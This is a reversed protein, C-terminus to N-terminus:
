PSVVVQVEPTPGYVQTIEGRDSLKVVVYRYKAQHVLNYTDLYWVLRGFDVFWPDDIASVGATHISLIEPSVQIFNRNPLDTRQRYVIFPPKIVLNQLINGATTGATPPKDTMLLLVGVGSQHLVPPLPQGQANVGTFYDMSDPVDRAPWTLAEDFPDWNWNFKKQDSAYTAGGIANAVVMVRYTKSADLQTGLGDVNKTQFSFFSTDPDYNLNHLPLVLPFMPSVGMAEFIMTYSEVGDYPGWWTVTVSPETPTGEPTASKMLPSPLIGGIFQVCNVFFELASQNGDADVSQAAYCVNGSVVPNYLDICTAVNGTPTVDCIPSFTEGDVSRHFKVIAVEPGVTAVLGIPGLEPHHQPPRGPTRDCNQLMDVDIFATVDVPYDRASGQDDRTDINITTTACVVRTRDIAQLQYRLFSATGLPLVHAYEGKDTEPDFVIEGLKFYAVQQGLVVGFSVVVKTVHPKTRTGLFQIRVERNDNPTSPRAVATLRCHGTATLICDTRPPEPSQRNFLVCRTPGTFPGRNGWSDLARVQYWFNKKLHQATNPGLDTFRVFEGSADPTQGITAILGEPLGDVPPFAQEKYAHEYKAFRFIQYRSTDDHNRKWIVMLRDEGGVVETQCFLGMPTDPPYDDQVTATYSNSPMGRRGLLDRAVVWYTLEMGPELMLTETNGTINDDVFYYNHGPEMGEPTPSLIVVPFDNLKTLAGVSELSEFTEGGPLPGPYRYIDFGFSLARNKYWDAGLEWRLYVREHNRNEIFTETLMQPAPLMTVQNADVTIRGLVLDATAGPVHTAHLEYTYIGPTRRDIYGVGEVLAVGYNSQVLMTRRFLDMEDTSDLVSVLVSAYNEATVAQCTECAAGLQALIDQYVKEEGTREFISRITALNRVKGTETIKTWTGPADAAGPKCYVIYDTFPPAGELGYWRLLIKHRGDGQDGVVGAFFMKFNDQVNEARAVPLALTLLAALALGVPTRTINLKTKM